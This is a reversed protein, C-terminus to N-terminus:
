GGIHEDKIHRCLESLAGTMALLCRCGSGRTGDHMGMVLRYGRQGWGHGERVGLWM